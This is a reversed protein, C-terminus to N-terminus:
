SAKEADRQSTRGGIGEYEEMALGSVGQAYHQQTPKIVTCWTEERGTVALVLRDGKTENVKEVIVNLQDLHGSKNFAM